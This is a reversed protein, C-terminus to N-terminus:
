RWYVSSARNDFNNNSFTKDYSVPKATYQIGSYNALQFLIIESGTQNAMSSAKNDFGRAALDPTKQREPIVLRSGGYNDYQFLCLSVSPCSFQLQADQASATGEEQAYAASATGLLSAAGLSLAGLAGVFKRKM